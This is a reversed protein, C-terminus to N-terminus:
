AKAYYKEGFILRAIERAAVKLTYGYSVTYGNGNPHNYNGPDYVSSYGGVEIGYKFWSYECDALFAGKQRAVSRMMNNVIGFRVDGLALIGGGTWDQNVRSLSPAPVLVEEAIASLNSHRINVTYTSTEPIAEVVTITVRNESISEVTYNGANVGGGVNIVSGAKLINGGYGSNAFASNAITRSDANFAYLTSVNYTRFPFGIANGAPVSPYTSASTVDHHPTTCVIPIAGRALCKDILTELVSRQGPLTQGTNFNGVPGDNMGGIILVFDSTAYPSNDLQASFQQFAQTPICQNDDIFDFGGYMDLEAKLAAVFLANPAYLANNGSGAGTGVSSGISTCIIQKKVVTKVGNNWTIDGFIANSGTVGVLKAALAAYPDSFSNKLATLGSQLTMIDTRPDGACILKFNTQPSGRWKVVAPQNAILEGGALPSNPGKLLTRTQTNGFVDTVSLSVAGTNAIVPEFTLQTGDGLSGNITLAIVDPSDTGSTVTARRYAALIRARYAPTTLLQYTQSTPNYMILCRGTSLAGPELAAGDAHQIVRATGGNISLTPTNTTNATNPPFMYLGGTTVDATATYAVGDGAVGSLKGWSVLEIKSLRTNLSSAAPGSVVLTFIGTPLSRYEIIAPNNLLLDGASLQSTPGTYITRTYSNGNADTVVATTPGTNTIPSVFYILSGDVLLGPITIAITNAANSSVATAAQYGTPMSSPMKRGTAELTGSNNIYEDALTTDVSNRVWCYGGSLINGATVDSQAATLSLYERVSNSISGQGVYEAVEVAAGANNKYYRFSLINGVGQPVRFYQGSTTGALGATTDSFTLKNDGFEAATSASAVAEDRAVGAETAYQLSNEESTAASQKSLLASGAADQAQQAAASTDQYGQEAELMYQKAEAASVAADAALQATKQTETITM